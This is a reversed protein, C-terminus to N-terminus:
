LACFSITTLEEGGIAAAFRNVRLYERPGRQLGHIAQKSVFPRYQGQHHDLLFLPQYGGTTLIGCHSPESRWASRIPAPSIRTLECHDQTGDSSFDSISCLCGAVLICRGDMRHCPPHCINAQMPHGLHLFETDRHTPRRTEYGTVLQCSGM